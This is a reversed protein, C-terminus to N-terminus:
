AVPRRSALAGPNLKGVVGGLLIRNILFIMGLTKM